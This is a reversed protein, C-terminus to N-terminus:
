PAPERGPTARPGPDNSHNAEWWALVAAEFSPWMDEFLQQQFNAQARSVYRELGARTMAFVDGDRMDAFTDADMAYPEIERVSM